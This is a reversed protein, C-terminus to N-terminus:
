DMSAQGLVKRLATMGIEGFQRPPIQWIQPNMLEVSVAGSYGIAQLHAVLPELRFDGDGPLVRDADAAFERPVGALDSLQVHYLNAASLYALDEEKSPGTYYHFVDLNM